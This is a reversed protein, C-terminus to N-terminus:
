TVATGFDHKILDHMCYLPVKATLGAIEADKKKTRSQLTLMHQQLAAASKDAAEARAEASQLQKHLATAASCLYSVEHLPLAAM